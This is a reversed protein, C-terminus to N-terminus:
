TTTLHADVAGGLLDFVPRGLLKGVLDHLALDVAALPFPCDCVAQELDAIIAGIPFPDRGILRPAYEDEIIAVTARPNLGNPWAAMPATEGWGEAGDNTIIRVLVTKTATQKQFSVNDDVRLPM